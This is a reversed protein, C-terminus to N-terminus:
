REDWTCDVEEYEAHDREMALVPLDAYVDHWETRCEQPLQLDVYKCSFEAVQGMKFRQSKLTPVEYDWHRGRVRPVLVHMTVEVSDTTLEPADFTWVGPEAQPTAQAWAVGWAAAFLLASGRLWPTIKHM